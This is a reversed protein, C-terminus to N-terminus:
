VQFQGQGAGDEGSVGKRPWSLAIFGPSPSKGVFSHADTPMTDYLGLISRMQVREHDDGLANKVTFDGLVHMRTGDWQFNVCGKEGTADYLADCSGTVFPLNNESLTLSDIHPKLMVNYGTLYQYAYGTNANVGNGAFGYLNGTGEDYGFLVAYCYAHTVGTNGAPYGDKVFADSCCGVVALYTGDSLVDFAYADRRSINTNYCWDEVIGTKGTAPELWNINRSAYGDQDTSEGICFVYTHEGIEAVRIGTQTDAEGEMVRKAVPALSPYREPELPTLAAKDTEPADALATFLNHDAASKMEYNSYIMWYPARWLERSYRVWFLEFGVSLFFEGYVAIHAPQATIVQVIVNLGGTAAIWASCLGKVGIGFTVTLMLRVNITLGQVLSWEFNRLNMDDDVLFSFYLGEVGLGLSATFAINFYMPIPPAPFTFPKTYEWSFVLEAGTAGSLSWVSGGDDEDFQGRGAFMMFYGFDLKVRAQGTSDTLKKYYQKATGMAQKKRALSMDHQFEKMAKDYAEAEKNKWLTADAPNEIVSSGFTIAVYGTPDVCIKPLYRDFPLSLSLTGGVVPIPVNLRFGRSFVTNFPGRFVESQRM